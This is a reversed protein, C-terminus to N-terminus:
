RLAVLNCADADINLCCKQDRLHVAPKLPDVTLCTLYLLFDYVSVNFMLLSRM